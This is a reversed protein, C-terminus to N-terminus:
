KRASRVVEERFERLKAVNYAAMQDDARAVIQIAEMGANLAAILDNPNIHEPLEM